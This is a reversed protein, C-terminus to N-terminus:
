KQYWRYSVNERAASASQCLGRDLFVVGGLAERAPGLGAERGSRRLMLTLVGDRTKPKSAPAGQRYSVEPQLADASTACGRAVLRGPFPM